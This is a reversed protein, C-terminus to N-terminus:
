KTYQFIKVVKQVGSVQRAIDVATNAQQQSVIGMLFVVGNETVVKISSSKLDETALMQSKIKTTIWSDSTRTLTSTPGQISIQNYIHAVDPISKAIEEAQQKLKANPTEGSLLVIRHFVTVEIHSEKYISPFARYKDVIKNALDTDELTNQITRHDYVVAIAAAGAAAGAVFICGQLSFVLSLILLIQKIFRNM